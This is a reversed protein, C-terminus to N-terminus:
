SHRGPLADALRKLLADTPQEDPGRRGRKPLDAITREVEAPSVFSTKGEGRVEVKNRYCWRLFSRSSAFGFREVMSAVTAWPAPTEPALVRAAEGM